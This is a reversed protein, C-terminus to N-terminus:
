GSYQRSKAPRPTAQTKLFGYHAVILKVFLCGATMLLFLFTIPSNKDLLSLLWLAYFAM